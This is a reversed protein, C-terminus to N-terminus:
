HVTEYMETPAPDTATPRVGPRASCRCSKRSVDQHHPGADAAAGGGQHGFDGALTTPMYFLTGDNLNPM